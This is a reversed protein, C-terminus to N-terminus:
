MEEERSNEGVLLRCCKRVGGEVASSPERWREGVKCLSAGKGKTELDSWAEGKKRANGPKKRAARSSFRTKVGEKSKGELVGNAWM